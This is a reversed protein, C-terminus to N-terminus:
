GRQGIKCSQLRASQEQNLGSHWVIDCYDFHAQTLSNYMLLLTKRPAYQRIRKLSGIASSVKKALVNSSHPELIKVETGTGTSKYFSCKFVEFCKSLLNYHYFKLIFLKYCTLHFM